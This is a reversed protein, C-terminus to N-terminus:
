GLKSIDEENKKFERLAEDYKKEKYDKLIKLLLTNNQSM